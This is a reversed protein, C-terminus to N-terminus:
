HDLAVAKETSRERERKMEGIRTRIGRYRGREKDKKKSSIRWIKKERMCGRAYRM